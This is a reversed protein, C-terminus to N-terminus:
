TGRLDVWLHHLYFPSIPYSRNLTQHLKSTAGVQWGGVPGQLQPLPVGQATRNVEALIDALDMSQVYGIMSGAKDGKAYGHEETIFRLVGHNIYNENFVWDSRFPKGLRKCEMVFNRVGARPDIASHDIFGWYFDPVKNERLAREIDDADPPNKGEYTPAHDFAEGRSEYIERNADLLCKYLERNLNNESDIINAKSQLLTLGRVVVTLVLDVHREWTRLQSIRPQPM